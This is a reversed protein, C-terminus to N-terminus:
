VNTEIGQSIIEVSEASQSLTGIFIKNFISDQLLGGVDVWPQLNLLFLILVVVLLGEVLGFFFGLSRDLSKLINGKFIWGLIKEVLKIVVYTIIFLLLFAAIKALIVVLIWQLLIQAVPTNCVIGAAFGVWFAAKGFFLAIFGRIAGNAVLVLIIVIFVVDIPAINM